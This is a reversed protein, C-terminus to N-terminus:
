SPGQPRCPTNQRRIAKCASAAATEDFGVFRARYTVQGNKEIMVTQATRGEVADPARKRLLQLVAQADNKTAYDGLNITWGADAPPTISAVQAKDALQEEPTKVQFPATGAEATVAEPAPQPVVQVATDPEAAAITTEGTTAPPPAVAQQSAQAALDALSGDETDGQESPQAAEPEAAAVQNEDVQNKRKTLRKSAAEKRVVQKPQATEGAESAAPTEAVAIAGKSSGAYAAITKGNTAKPFYKTLMSKMYADRSAGTRGGMVVGVLRKEGRRVSSVLNFGSANIYGTKIGDTGDYSGLLRNHGRITRGAFVFSQARFYPYYQPFDRMVRLGLTAMDRATTVQKPNPLGSANLFTTKSMGIDRATRTMRQAFASESGSINEAVAAAVDNASKVVLARIATEVTISNGARVGLKSPAMGAARASIRIPSNLTLRGRELEQFLIYLTMIKTLSAPHRISDANEAFLLKGTRADVTVAAFKPNAYASGSFLGGALAVFLALM